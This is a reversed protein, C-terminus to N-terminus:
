GLTFKNFKIDLLKSRCLWDPKAEEFALKFKFCYVEWIVIILVYHSKGANSISFLFLYLMVKTIVQCCFSIHEFDKLLNYILRWTFSIISNKKDISLMSQQRYILWITAYLFWFKKMDLPLFYTQSFEHNDQSSYASKLHIQSM